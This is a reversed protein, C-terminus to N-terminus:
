YAGTKEPTPTEDTTPFGLTSNEWGLAAWTARIAGRVEHAGTAPSWYISGNQFHNYAGTKEPTPTEDTTPFGLTSNEWGLAAWTARIAGRVEHAGTTPSWYISGNQFHNYAGTKEPTPTENTTPFGLASNEWGLAAWTARIAGRVEHAGTTPSWYISGNQFHNYAGTKEPTPTEDTTPFGLASNEWGLASWTGRIAGRVVHAGTAPSSYISGNEYHTYAGSGDPTSQQQTVPEGLFGAPGGLANYHVAIPSPDFQRGAPDTFVYGRSRYSEIIRDLAEITNQRYEVPPGDHLLVIPHDYVPNTARQVITDQYSPSLDSPAAWDRPDNSWDAITMGRAWALEQVSASDHSGGPGRFFCPRLGSATYIADTAGDMQAAQESRSLTDLDPHTRTHNGISHGEAIVQRVLEPDDEAHRGLVFFTAHVGHAALVDLVQPTWRPSPGDDFTLAVNRTYTAPTLDLVSRVPAPCDNSPLASAAGPLGLVVGAAALTTILSSRVAHRAHRREPFRPRTRM